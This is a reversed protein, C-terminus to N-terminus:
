VQLDSLCDSKTFGLPISYLNVAFGHCCAAVPPQYKTESGSSNDLSILSIRLDSSCPQPLNFAVALIPLVSHSVAIQYSVLRLM